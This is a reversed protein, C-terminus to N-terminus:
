NCLSIFFRVSCIISTTIGSSSSCSSSSSSSSFVSPEPEIASGSPETVGEPSPASDSGSIPESAPLVTLLLLRHQWICSLANDLAKILWIAKTDQAKTDKTECVMGGVGSNRRQTSLHNWVPPLKMFNQDILREPHKRNFHM